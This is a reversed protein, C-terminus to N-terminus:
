AKGQVTCGSMHCCHQGESNMPLDEHSTSTAAPFLSLNIHGRLSLPTGFKKVNIGPQRIKYVYRPLKMVMWEKNGGKDMDELLDM